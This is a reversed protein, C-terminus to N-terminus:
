LTLVYRVDGGDALADAQLLDSTIASGYEGGASRYMPVLMEDSYFVFIVRFLSAASELL